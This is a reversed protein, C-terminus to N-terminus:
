LSPRTWWNGRAFRSALFYLRTWWYGQAFRSALFYLGTLWNGRAFRSALFYLRTLWNGRAFRSALFSLRTWWNGRAFRSAKYLAKDSINSKLLGLFQWCKLQQLSKQLTELKENFNEIKNLCVECKSEQFGALFSVSLFKVCFGFSLVKGVWDQKVRDQKM